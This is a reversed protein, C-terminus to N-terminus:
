NIVREGFEDNIDAEHYPTPPRNIEVHHLKENESSNVEIDLYEVKKMGSLCENRRSLIRSADSELIMQGGMLIISSHRRKPGHYLEELTERSLNAALISSSTSESKASKNFGDSTFVEFEDEDDDANDILGKSSKNPSIRSNDHRSEMTHLNEEEKERQRRKMFERCRNSCGGVWESLLVSGAIIFGAGLLLFMGETDALTLSREEQQMTTSSSKSTKLLRGSSSKKMAWNVDSIVKEMLGSSQFRLIADNFREKYISNPPFIM